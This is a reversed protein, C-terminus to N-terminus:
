SLVVIVVWHVLVMFTSPHSPLREYGIGPLLTTYDPAGLNRLVFDPGHAWFMGQPFAVFATVMTGRKFIVSDPKGDGIFYVRWWLAGSAFCILLSAMSLVTFAHHRVDAFEIM